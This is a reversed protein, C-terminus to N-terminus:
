KAWICWVTHALM